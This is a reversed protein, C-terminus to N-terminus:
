IPHKLLNVIFYVFTFSIFNISFIFANLNPLFDSSLLVCENYLQGRILYAGKYLIRQITTQRELLSYGLFQEKRHELESVIYLVLSWYYSFFINRIQAEVFISSQLATHNLMYSLNDFSSIFPSHQVTSLVIVKITNVVSGMIRWYLTNVACM